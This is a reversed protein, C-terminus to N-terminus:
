NYFPVKRTTGSVDIYFFGVPAAPLTGAGASATGGSQFGASGIGPYGSPKVSFLVTGASDQYEQLNATQSALGKIILGQSSTAAPSITRDAVFGTAALNDKLHVNLLAATLVEGSSWTRPSTWTM